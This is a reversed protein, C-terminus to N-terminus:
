LRESALVELVAQPWRAVAITTGASNNLIVVFGALARALLVEYLQTHGLTVGGRSAETGSKLAIVCRTRQRVIHGVGDCGISMGYGIDNATFDPGEVSPNVIDLEQM